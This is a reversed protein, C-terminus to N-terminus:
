LNLVARVEDETLGLAMLKDIGSQRLQQEEPTPTPPMVFVAPLCPNSVNAPTPNNESM